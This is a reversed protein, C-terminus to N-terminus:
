LVRNWQHMAAEGRDSQGLAATTILWYSAVVPRHIHTHIPSHSCTSHLTQPGRAGYLGNDLQMVWINKLKHNSVVAM